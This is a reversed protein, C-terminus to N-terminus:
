SNRKFNGVALLLHHWAILMSDANSTHSISRSADHPSVLRYNCRRTPDAPAVASQFSDHQRICADAKAITATAQTNKIIVVLAAKADRWVTYGLLQDIAEDFKSPGNWFKCEGIFANRGHHRVLIDTKGKGNVTEGAVFVEGGDEQEFNVNLLFILWDRLTEERPIFQRASAPRREMAHGFSIIMRIIQEYVIDTLQWEAESSAVAAAVVQAQAPRVPLPLVQGENIRRIPIDLANLFQDAEDALARRQRLQNSIEGRTRTEYTAVDNNIHQVWTALVEEARNLQHRAHEPEIDMGPFSIIVEHDNVDAEPYMGQRHFPQFSFLQRTGTYPIYLRFVVGDSAARVSRGNASMWRQFEKPSMIKRDVRRSARDLQIQRPLKKAAIAEALKDISDAALESETLEEAATLASERCRELHQVVHVGTFLYNVM